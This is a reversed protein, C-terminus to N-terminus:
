FLACIKFSFSFNGLCFLRFDLFQLGVSFVGLFLNFLCFSFLCFGFSRLGLCLLRFRLSLLGLYSSQGNQLRLMVLGFQDLQLLFFLLGLCFDCLSLFLLLGSILM